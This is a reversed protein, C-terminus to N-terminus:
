YRQLREHLHKCLVVDNQPQLQQYYQTICFQSIM